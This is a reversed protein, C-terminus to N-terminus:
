RLGGIWSNCIGTAVWINCRLWCGTSTCSYLHDHPPDRLHVNADNTKYTLMAQTPIRMAEVAARAMPIWKGIEFDAKRQQTLTDWCGGGWRAEYIARAVREIMESM